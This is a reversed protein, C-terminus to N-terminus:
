QGQEQLGEDVDAALHCAKCLQGDALPLRLYDPETTGLTDESAEIERQDLAVGLVEQAWGAPMLPGGLTEARGSDQEISDAPHPDHCTGCFVTGEDLPLGAAQARAIVEPELDILHEASSAHMEVELHCGECMRPGAVKLDDMDAETVEADQHCFECVSKADPREKMDTHPDYSGLQEVTHCRACFSGITDYPGGRLFYPNDPDMSAGDCAPEDHCTLCAVVRGDLPWTEPLKAHEGTGDDGLVPEMGVEHPGEEHCYLCAADSSGRAFTSGLPGSDGETHCWVCGAPVGHPSEEDAGPAAGIFTAMALASAGLALGLDLSRDQWRLMRRM